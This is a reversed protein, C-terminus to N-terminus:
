AEMEELVRRFGMVEVPAPMFNKDETSTLEALTVPMKVDKGLKLHDSLAQAKKVSLKKFEYQAILRGKRMLASDVVTLSSNFTCIIQVSMCDSLLGDGINLLSSVASSSNLKRDMIINEADEIIIVANPNDLMLEMFDPNSLNGAVAPSMFLVRKELRGILHRLYTTKGTGPLGHLLVIGKDNKRDLREKIISDVAAFDDNYYLNIDLSTATIPLAKLELGYSGNTVINIEFERKKEPAKFAALVELLVKAKSYNKPAFLIEMYNHGIEILIDDKMQFFSRTFELNGNKRNYESHQYIDLVDAKCEETIYSYLKAGDLDEAYMVAPTRSYLYMYFAKSEIYNQDFFNVANKRRKRIRNNGTNDILFVVLIIILFIYM